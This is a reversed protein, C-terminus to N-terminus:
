QNTESEGRSVLIPEVVAKARLFVVILAVLLTARGFVSAQLYPSAQDLSSSGLYFVSFYLLADVISYSAWWLVNIRLLAFFPLIWLVFQPSHVKNWLLFAALAAACAQLFPYSGDRIARRWGLIFVIVFSTLILGITILNLSAISWSATAFSWTPKLAWVSDTNPPRLQMWRYTSFWGDANILIFPLNILLATGAGAGLRTMAARRDGAFLAELALPAVFIAPYIKACAGTGFLVAAWVPRRHWWCWLGLMAPAGALLDWNHFAYLVLAPAAAYLLARSGSMRALIYSILLGLSGLFVASITLYSRPSWAPRGTLWFFVGTLVPYEVFGPLLKNGQMGGHIYPFPMQGIRRSYFLSKIDSYCLESVQREDSFPCWKLIFGAMLSISSVVLVVILINSSARRAGAVLQRYSSLATMGDVQESATLKFDSVRETGPM